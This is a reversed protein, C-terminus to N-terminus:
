LCVKIIMTKGKPCQASIKGGHAEVVAKAIALGIGSGGDNVNRSSDPRYFRDFLRKVDISEAYDAPNSIEINVKSHNEYVKFTIDGEGRSYKIANDLLVSLMQGIASKDGNICLNEEIDTKISINKAKAGSQYVELIEWSIDSLSFEEKVYIPKAEDLRSLTVLEGVLKTMRTSQNRINETWENDGDEMTLVDISTLISTLPTKLEHSADTIFQKQQEINQVIPKIATGSFIIVLISVILLSFIAVLITILELAKLHQQDQMVNLFVVINNSDNKGKLYRYERIYGSNAKKGIAIETLDKTEERSTESINDDSIEIINGDDDYRAVFFRTIYEAEPNEKGMFPPIPLKGDNSDMFASDNEFDPGDNFDPKKEFNPANGFDPLENLKQGEFEAIAALTDDAQNTVMRYNIVNVLISVFVIVLAFALIASLIIRIRLRKIM